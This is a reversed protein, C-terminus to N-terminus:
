TSGLRPSVQIVNRNTVWLHTAATGHCRLLSHASNVCRRRWPDNQYEIRFRPGCQCDCTGCTSATVPHNGGRM